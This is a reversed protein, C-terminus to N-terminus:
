GPPQGERTRGYAPLSIREVESLGALRELAGPTAWAQYVGLAAAANEVRAGADHLADAVASTVSSVRVYVEIEGRANVRANPGSLAAAATGDSAARVQRALAALSPSIKASALTAAPPAAAASDAAATGSGPGAGCGAVAICILLPIPGRPLRRPM